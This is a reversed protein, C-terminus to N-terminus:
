GLARPRHSCDVILREELATNAFFMGTVSHFDATGNM